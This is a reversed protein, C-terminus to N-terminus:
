RRAQKREAEALENRNHADVTMVELMLHADEIGYVTSLEHLTAMKASVLSGIARPVNAYDILESGINGGGLDAM